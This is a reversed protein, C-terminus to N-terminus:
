KVVYLRNIYQRPFTSIQIHLWQSGSKTHEFLAKDLYPNRSLLDCLRLGEDPTCRIDAALGLTHYSNAVGGVAENVEKSRYGSTVVLPRGWAVRLPELILSCLACLNFVATLPPTNNLNKARATASATMEALTFHPSLNM